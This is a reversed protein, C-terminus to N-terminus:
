SGMSEVQMHLRVSKVATRSAAGGEGGIRGMSGSQHLKCKSAGDNAIYKVGRGCVQHRVTGSTNFRVERDQVIRGVPGGSGRANETGTAKRIAAHAALGSFKPHFPPSGEKLYSCM